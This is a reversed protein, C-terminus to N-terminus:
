PTLRVHRKPTQTNNNHPKHIIIIINSTVEFIIFDAKPSQLKGFLTGTFLLFFSQFPTAQLPVMFVIYFPKFTVGMCKLYLCNKRLFDPMM